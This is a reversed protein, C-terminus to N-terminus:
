FSIQNILHVRFKSIVDDVLARADAMDVSVSQLPNTVTNFQRLSELFM